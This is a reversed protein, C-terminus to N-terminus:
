CNENRFLIRLYSPVGSRFRHYTRGWMELYQTQGRTWFYDLDPENWIDISLGETACNEIMDTIFVTLYEDWGIISNPNSELM